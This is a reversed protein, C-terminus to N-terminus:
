GALSELTLELHASKHHRLAQVQVPDATYSEIILMVWGRLDYLLRFPGIQTAQSYEVLLMLSVVFSIVIWTFVLLRILTLLLCAVARCLLGLSRCTFKLVPKLSGKESHNAEEQMEISGLANDQNVEEQRVGAEQRANTKDPAQTKWLEDDLPGDGLYSKIM